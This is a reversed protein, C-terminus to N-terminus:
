RVPAFRHHGNLRLPCCYRVKCVPLIWKVRPKIYYTPYFRRCHSVACAEALQGAQVPDGLTTQMLTNGDRNDTVWDHLAHFIFPDTFLLKKAKKLPLAYGTKRFPPNFIHRM